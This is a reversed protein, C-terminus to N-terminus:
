WLKPIRLPILTTVVGYVNWYRLVMHARYVSPAMWQRQRSTAFLNYRTFCNGMLLGFGHMCGARRSLWFHQKKLRHFCFSSTWTWVCGGRWNRSCKRKFRYFLGYLVGCERFRLRIHLRLGPNLWSPFSNKSGVIRLYTFPVSSRVINVYLKNM